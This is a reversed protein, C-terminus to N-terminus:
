PELRKRPKGKPCRDGTPFRKRLICQVAPFTQQVINHARNATLSM